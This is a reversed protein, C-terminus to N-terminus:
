FLISQSFVDHCFCITQAPKGCSFTGVPLVVPAEPLGPGLSGDGCVYCKDSPTNPISQLQNHVYAEWRKRETEDSILPSWFVNNLNNTELAGTPLKDFSPVTINPATRVLASNASVAVGITHANWFVETLARHFLQIFSLAIVDFDNQYTREEAKSTLKYCSFSLSSGVVIFVVLLVIRLCNVVKNERLVLEDPALVKREDPASMSFKHM